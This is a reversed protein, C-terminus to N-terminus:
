WVRKGNEAADIIKRIRKERTEPKKATFLWSLHTKKVSPPYAQFVRLAAPNNSLALGLDDPVTWEGPRDHDIPKKKVGMRFAALGEATMKGAAIMEEAYRLTNKSWNAGPKRRVFIRGFRDEDISKMITDIWGFCVAEEVSERHTIASKGTHKKYSILM